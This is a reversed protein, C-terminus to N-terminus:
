SANQPADLIELDFEATPDLKTRTPCHSEIAVQVHWIGPTVQRPINRNIPLVPPSNFGPTALPYRISIVENALDKRSYVMVVEGPCSEFSERWVTFSLMGGVHVTPTLLRVQSTRIVPGDKEFFSAMVFSILLSGFIVTSVTAFINWLKRFEM